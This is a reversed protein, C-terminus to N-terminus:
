QSRAESDRILKGWKDAGQKMTRGLDEPGGAVIDGGLGQLRQQVEAQQLVRGIETNLKAIVPKPTKAPVVIGYWSAAEYGPLTEAVTPIEPAVSSRKASTVALAKLRGARINPLAAALNPMYVSVEGSMTDNLAQANVRYPVEVVQIGTMSRILAMGLDSATGKGATAYNLKGPSAKALEILEKVSNAKFQPNAILVTPFVAILSVPAFDRFVDYPVDKIIMPSVIVSTSAIFMTYGDPTARAAAGAGITGAGGDRNEVIVQKGLSETLKIALQRAVIDAATGSSFAVIIRLPRDPFSQASAAAAFGALALGTGRIFRKM